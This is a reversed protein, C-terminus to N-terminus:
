LLCFSFCFFFFGSQNGRRFEAATTPLFQSHADRGHSMISHRSRRWSTVISQTAFIRAPVFQQVGSALSLNEIMHIRFLILVGFPINMINPHASSVELGMVRNGDQHFHKEM